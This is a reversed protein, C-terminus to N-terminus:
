GGGTKPDNGVQPDMQLKASGGNSIFFTLHGTVETGDFNFAITMINGALGSAFMSMGTDAQYAYGTFYLDSSPKGNADVLTCQLARPTGKAKNHFTVQEPDSRFTYRGGPQPIAYVLMPRPVISGPEPLPAATSPADISTEANM